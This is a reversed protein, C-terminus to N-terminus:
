SRGILLGIANFVVALVLCVTAVRAAWAKGEAVKTLRAGLIVFQDILSVTSRQTRSANVYRRRYEATDPMKSRQPWGGYAAVM